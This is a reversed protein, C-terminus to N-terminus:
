ITCGEVCFEFLFSHRSCSFIVIDVLYTTAAYTNQLKSKDPNCMGWFTVLHLLVEDFMVCAARYSSVSLPEYKVQKWFKMISTKEFCELPKTLLGLSFKYAQYTPYWSAFHICLLNWNSNSRRIFDECEHFNECQQVRCIFDFHFHYNAIVLQVHLMMSRAHIAYHLHCLLTKSWWHTCTAGLTLPRPILTFSTCVLMLRM